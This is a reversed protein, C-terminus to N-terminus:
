GGVSVSEKTTQRTERPRLPRMARGESKLISISFEELGNSVVAQDRSRLDKTEEVAFASVTDVAPQLLQEVM